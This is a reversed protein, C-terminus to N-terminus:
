SIKKQMQELHMDTKLIPTLNATHPFKLEQDFVRKDIQRKHLGKFEKM